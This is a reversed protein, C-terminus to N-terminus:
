EGAFSRSARVHEDSFVKEGGQPRPHERDWHLAQLGTESVRAHDSAYLLTSSLRNAPYMYPAATTASMTVKRM